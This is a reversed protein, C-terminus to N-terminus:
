ERQWCFSHCKKWCCVRCTSKSGSPQLALLGAAVVRLAAYVVMPKSMLGLAFFLLAASYDLTSRRPDLASVTMASSRKQAYRAYAWLALLWFMASLVDKRECIWAVAEVQLPHLGFLGAVALSRWTAGTLRRLVLFVLVANVAHLLVNTLHYGWPKVGYLQSDLMLSWITLPHWYNDAVKHSFAWVVNGLTLGGQVHANKTVYVSDDADVFEGRLAPLFTWVVVGFLLLCIVVGSKHRFRNVSQEVASPSSGHGTAPRDGAATIKNM